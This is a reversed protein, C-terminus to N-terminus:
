VLSRKNKTVSIYLKVIVYKNCGIPEKDNVSYTHGYEIYQLM